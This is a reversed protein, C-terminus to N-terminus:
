AGADPFMGLSTVTSIDVAGILKEYTTNPTVYQSGDVADITWTVTMGRTGAPTTALLSAIAASHPDYRAYVTFAGGEGDMIGVTTAPSYAVECFVSHIGMDPTADTSFGVRIKLADVRAQTPQYYGTTALPSQHMRCIWAMIANDWGHDGAAVDLDVGMAATDFFKLGLTAATTSAAWGAIYWRIARLVYDPAATFTEMPIEVYDSAAVAVQTLGDASAGITPPVDALRTRTDTASWTTLTGGNSTFTKFNTSTGSLTPTGAPDV